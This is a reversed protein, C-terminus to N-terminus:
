YIRRWKKFARVDAATLTFWEGEKRKSAFRMHWYKEIGAPDDTKIYHIPQIKEPLELRIEGERRIPNTTKGIKFENRTGHKVLYVYGVNEQNPNIEKATIERVTRNVKLCISLIDDFENKGTCYQIIRQVRNQKSGLQRLANHSPFTPDNRRKNRLEGEIPFHGLERILEIYKTILFDLEFAKNFVNPVLGAEKIADSWRLWINPYWDSKLIGTETSFRQWGPPKCDNKAIRRIESIIDQKTM